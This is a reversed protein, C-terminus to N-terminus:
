YLVDLVINGQKSDAKKALVDTQEDIESKEADKERTKVNKETVTKREIQLFFKEYLKPSEIEYGVKTNNESWQLSERESLFFSRLFGFNRLVCEWLHTYQLCFLTKHM